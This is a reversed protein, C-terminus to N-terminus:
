RTPPTEWDSGPRPGPAREPGDWREDWREDPREGPREDPREDTREFPPPQQARRDDYSRHGMMEHGRHAAQGYGGRAALDDEILHNLLQQIENSRPINSFDESDGDGATEIDLSGSKTIRDLLSQRFSVDTIKSLAIDQGSKSLIGRRVAVRKNTIVYHTTRWKLVPVVLVWLFALAAVAIIVWDVIDWTPDVPTLWVIVAAVGAILLGLVIPKFVTLWHPHLSKVVREDKTLINEPFGM